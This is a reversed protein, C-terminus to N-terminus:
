PKREESFLLGMLEVFKLFAANEYPQQEVHCDRNQLEKRRNEAQESLSAELATM